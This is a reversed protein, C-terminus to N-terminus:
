IFSHAFSHSVVRSFVNPKISVIWQWTGLGAPFTIEESYGWGAGWIKGWVGCGIDGKTYPGALASQPRDTVELRSPMPWLGSPVKHPSGTLIPDPSPTILGKVEAQKM